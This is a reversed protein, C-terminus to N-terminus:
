KNLDILFIWYLEVGSKDTPLARTHKLGHQCLTVSENKHLPLCEKNEFMKVQYGVARLLRSYVQFNLCKLCSTRNLDVFRLVGCVLVGM